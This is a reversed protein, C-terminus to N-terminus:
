EYYDIVPDEGTEVWADGLESVAKKFRKRLKQLVEKTKDGAKDLRNDIQKILKRGDTRLETYEERLEKSVKGPVKRIKQLTKKSREEWKDLEKKIREPM